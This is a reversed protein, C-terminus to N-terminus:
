RFTYLRFRSSIFALRDDGLATQGFVASYASGLDFKQEVIGKSNIFYATKGVTTVFVGNKWRTLSSVSSDDLKVRRVENFSRDIFVVEGRVTGFAMEDRSIQLGSRNSQFNLKKFLVGSKADLIELKDDVSGVLIKSNFIVARMDVDVFKQGSTMRREWLVQGEELSFCIFHGDAFGAYVKNDIVLPTSARQVTSYYAVSRKYSWLVRGTYADINFLKHNRTQIFLRGNFVTPTSDIGADLDFEYSLESKALDYGYVRGSNDGFILLNEYVVPASTMRGKIKMTWLLRGNEVNYANFNGSGDAAYLIGDHILPSSLSIPLNGSEYVPDLNKSWALTLPEQKLKSGSVKSTVRDVSACSMLLPALVFATYLYKKIAM